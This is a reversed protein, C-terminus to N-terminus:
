GEDGDLERKEVVGETGGGAVLRCHALLVPDYSTVRSYAEGPNRAALGVEESRKRAVWDSLSGQGSGTGLYGLISMEVEGIFHHPWLL